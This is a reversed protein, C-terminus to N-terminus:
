SSFKWSKRVEELHKKAKLDELNSNAKDVVAGFKSHWMFSGLIIVWSILWFIPWFNAEWGEMEYRRQGTFKDGYESKKLYGAKDEEEREREKLQKDFEDMNLKKEPDDM